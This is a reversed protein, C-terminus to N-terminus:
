QKGKAKPSSNFRWQVHFMVYRPLVTRYTETRAQANITYSVNSLDHLIDYGDLMLLLKGKLARYTLRANWVFNDTNLAEDTYGRRNYVTFDTALQFNAPLEFVANLGSRVTWTNQRTFDARNSTFRDHEALAILGLRHKGFRYEMRFEDTLNLNYVKSRFLQPSDEGVLDVSTSHGVGFMNGIMLGNKFSKIFAMNGQASWNGNVNYYSAERIGTHTDYTYGQSLANSLLSYRGEVQFRNGKERNTNRYMLRTNFQLANKLDKNGRKIYLPDTDDTFDVMTVLDPTRSKLDWSWSIRHVDKEWMIRANGIDFVASRRTFTTDVAGRQYSLKQNMLTVPLNYRVDFNGRSYVYSITLKHNNETIRSLYSNNRDLTSEYDLASPLKGFLFDDVSEVDGDLLFLDSTEKRYNHDYRYSFKVTMGRTLLHAYTVEAGLNSGFDPYNKFYRNATRAPQPDQGFNIDYHNFREDHSNDYKGFLKLTVMDWMGPLKFGQWLDMGTSLSHGKRRDESISRNLVDALVSHDGGEYIHRIFDSSVDNYAESFVASVDESYNDWHRYNFYPETRIGYGEPTKYYIKHKTDLTLSKNRSRNFGYEYTNGTLLYNSRVMDTGDTERTSEANVSGDFEWRGGLPKVNYNFGGAISKRVGTPMIEPTWSTEQGPRRSDNLNNINFYAAYQGMPTFALGFLRGLYRDSSGYGGEMNLTTGIMYEKKLKVDMVLRSDGMDMGVLESEEGAKNYVEINKVTYAALNQLMLQNNNDFFRKGNLLLEEVYEGDVYIRGDDKLEVGPMQQILADLMSGEALKFADANYVLTDGKHYFKVKSATVVVEDLAQSVEALYVPPLKLIYERRGLKGLDIDVTKEEYGVATFSLIYKGKERPLVLTFGGTYTKSNDGGSSYNEYSYEDAAAVAVITSDSTNFARVSAFSIPRHFGSAELVTGTVRIDDKSYTSISILFLPFIMLVQKIFLPMLKKTRRTMM